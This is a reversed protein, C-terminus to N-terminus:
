FVIKPEYEEAAAIIQKDIKGVDIVKTIIGKKKAYRITAGTGSKYDSVMAILKGSRDVMYENRKPLCWKTYEDSVYYVEDAYLMINGLIFKDSGYFNSGHGKYPVAAVLKIDKGQAKLKLIIDGAWLDVGRALGTVFTDYGDDICDIIEKYLLSKLVKVIQERERGGGPLKEPRHGSFCVTRSKESESYM